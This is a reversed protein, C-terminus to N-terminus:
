PAPTPATGPGFLAGIAKGVSTDGVEGGVITHLISPQPQKVGQTEPEATKQPAAQVEKDPLKTAATSVIIVEQFHCVAQLAFESKADTTVELTEMLMNTYLRKGTMVNFPEFSGQLELLFQYVGNVYDETGFGLLGAPNINDQLSSNSWGLRMTVHVPEKFAHDSIPAGQEVPHTTIVVRDHHHEEITVNPIIDAIMRPREILLNNAIFNSVFGTALISGSM